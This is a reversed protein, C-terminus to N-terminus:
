VIEEKAIPNKGSSKQRRSRKRDALVLVGLLVLVALMPVLQLPSIGEEEAATKLYIVTDATIPQAPDFPEETRADYWGLIDWRQEYDPLPPITEGPQVMHCVTGTGADPIVLVAYYPADELWLRNLFAIRAELFARIRETEELADPQDWRIANMSSAQAIEAHYGALEEQLMRELLPLCEQAYVKLMEERFQPHQLLAYFWSRSINSRTRARGAFIAQPNDGHVGHANGMSIDYDWVPGAFMLTEGASGYFYQSIAGGDNNAFIEEALYKRVWSDLDILETWHKGSLPDVGDGAFIANEVSQLLQRLAADSVRSNHNRFAHGSQTTVFPKGNEQLRWELDMSVLYKGAGEPWIRQQQIENRECLLYLGAYEGNLYLDAWYSEPSHELGAEAAFDFVLKNRLHSADLANSQLIWNKAQGMGLLDGDFALELSYSKKPIAWDNGRGNIAELNGTYALQGDPLYLRMRGEEQNEKSEHIIEMSGSLTDLYIAPLNQSQMLTLVTTVQGQDSDYTLTYPVDPSLEGCSMGDEVPKGDIRVDPCHTQFSVSGNQAYGPLFLYYGGTDDAWCAIEEQRGEQEVVASLPINVEPNPQLEPELLSIAVAVLGFAATMLLSLLKGHKM